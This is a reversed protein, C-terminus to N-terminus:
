ATWREKAEEIEEMKRGIDEMVESYTRRDIYRRAKSVVSRLAQIDSLYTKIENKSFEDCEVAFNEIWEDADNALEEIPIWEENVLREFVSDTVIAVPEFNGVFVRGKRLASVWCDEIALIRSGDGFLGLENEEDLEDGDMGVGNTYIPM